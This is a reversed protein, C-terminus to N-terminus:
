TRPPNVQHHILYMSEVLVHTLVVLKLGRAHPVGEATRANM